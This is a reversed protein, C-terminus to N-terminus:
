WVRCLKYTHTQSTLVKVEVAGIQDGIIQMRAPLRSSGRLVDTHSALEMESLEDFTPLNKKLQIWFSQRFTWSFFYFTTPKHERGGSFTFNHM